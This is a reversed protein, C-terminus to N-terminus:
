ADLPPLFNLYYKSFMQTEEIGKHPEWSWFRFVEPDSAWNDFIDEADTMEFKRLVLRDTEISETGVHNM